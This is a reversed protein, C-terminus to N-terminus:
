HLEDVRDGCVDRPAGAGAKPTSFLKALVVGRDGIVAGNLEKLVLRALELGPVEIEIRVVGIRWGALRKRRWRVALRAALAKDAPNLRANAQEVCTFLAKPATRPTHTSTSALPLRRLPGGHIGHVHIHAWFILCTFPM